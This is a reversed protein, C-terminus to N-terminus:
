NKKAYPCGGTKTEPAPKKGQILDALAQVSLPNAYLHPFVPHETEATKTAAFEQLAATAEPSLHSTMIEFEEKPVKSLYNIMADVCSSTIFDRPTSLALTSDRTSATGNGFVMAAMARDGVVRGLTTLLDAESNQNQIKVVQAKPNPLLFSILRERPSDGDVPWVTPVIVYVDKWKDGLKKKWALLAPLDAEVQIRAGNAISTQTLPVVRDAYKRYESWEVKNQKLCSQIYENTIELMEKIHSVIEPTLHEASSLLNSIVTEIQKGMGALPGQWGVATPCNGYPLVIASIGIIMHSLTKLIAYSPPAPTVQERSGDENYLIFTGGVGQFAPEYDSAIIVPKLHNGIHSIFNKYHGRALMNLDKFDKILNDVSDGRHCLVRRHAAEDLNLLHGNLEADGWVPVSQNNDNITEPRRTPIQDFFSSSIAKGSASESSM